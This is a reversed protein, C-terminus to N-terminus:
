PALMAQVTPEIAEAWLAYGQRTLQLPAPSLNHSLVGRPNLFVHNINLFFVRKGDALSPLLANVKEGKHRLESDALLDRPLLGLLLVRSSPCKQRIRELVAEVGGVIQDPTFDRHNANYAGILLVILKPSLGDLAGREIRWLLHQTSDGEFGFNAANRHEYYLKWVKAGADEWGQTLSDGLFLLDPQAEKAEQLKRGPRGLWWETRANTQDRSQPVAALNADEPWFRALHLGGDGEYLLAIRGDKLASMCSSNSARPDLLRGSSWTIGGDLSTRVTLSSRATASAPNCFLLSGGPHALLSAQCSPDPLAFWPKGWAKTRPDFRCWAREGSRSEDRMSFLLFGGPLEAAQAETTPRAQPIAPSSATWTAGHDQSLLLFARPTGGAERFQAPLVLTGDELQLGCGPGQFCIRWEPQKVQPTISRPPSWTLGEDDSHSLVLQGTQDPLLGPGSGNWARDGQSWLAAVFIRGTQRDVFLCPSGVGNGRAGPEAADYDLITRMPQWTDGNDTSRLLGVDIDGPLDGGSARRQDFAALLTGAPTTALAPKRYTHVGDAGHKRLLQTTLGPFRSTESFQETQPLDTPVGWKQQLYKSHEEFEAPSLAHSFVLVEAIDCKLGNKLSHNAGLVFGALRTASQEIRLVRWGLAAGRIQTAGAAAPIAGDCFVGNAGNAIRVFCLLTRAPTVSGWEAASQWLASSGDLRLVDRPGAKTQVKWIRPHGVVRDLTKGSPAQTSDQWATVNGEIAQLGVDARYWAHLGAPTPEAPTPEAARAPHWLSGSLIWLLLPYFAKM